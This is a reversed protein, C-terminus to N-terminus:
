VKRVLSAALALILGTFFALMGPTGVLMSLDRIRDAKPLWASGVLSLLGGCGFSILNVALSSLCIHFCPKPSEYTASISWFIAIYLLLAALALFGETEFYYLWIDIAVAWAITAVVFILCRKSNDNVIDVAEHIARAGGGSSRSRSCHLKCCPM